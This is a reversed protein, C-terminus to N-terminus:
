PSAPRWTIRDWSFTYSYAGVPQGTNFVTNGDLTINNTSASSTGRLKLGVGYDGFIINNQLKKVITGANQVYAAGGHTRDPASWGNHFLINGYFLSGVASDSTIANPVDHIVFNAFACGTCQDDVAAFWDTDIPTSGTVQSTRSNWGSYTVALGQFTTYSGKVSLYNGQHLLRAAAAHGPCVGSCTGNWGRLVTISNGSVAQVSSNNRM